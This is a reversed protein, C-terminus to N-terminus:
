SRSVNQYALSASEYERVFIRHQERAMFVMLENAYEKVLGVSESDMNSSAVMQPLSVLMRLLHEAGYIESMEKEQGVVVTPGTVYKKRIEAYQPREFRYLLNAGLARDFYTQLGAVITPLLTPPDKLHAAKEAIVYTKFDQLLDLVNPKRPLGVLQNNKTVAEWDDVLLVKLSEPVTLKMEPRKSHEDQASNNHSYPPSFTHCGAEERGRKTGRTGGDKRGTRSSSGAAALKSAGKSASASASGQAANAQAQLAKQLQINSENYKMLRAPQVWEDWTQKWGKYHVFYHPGVTGMKTTTEDWHEIKIIKAEYVLPGHYCLIREGQSYIGMPTTMEGAYLPSLHTPSRQLYPTHDCSLFCDFVGDYAIRHREALGRFLARIGDYDPLDEFSLSRTYKYFIDFEAPLGVTLLDQMEVKRDRILDWTEDTTPAKIKRWPLSGRLFYILMYALSELDDRRSAEIGLHTNIAAFLCTGVGHYGDQKYAIHESTRPDRFKKALGFDIINVLDDGDQDSKPIVFNAPKIDRHVLDRSHIYEIRSILQDTLLLITKLSFYNNCMDFLQELSPGLLDIVMVNYDGQKGSWMIWPVGPGGSLTKYIKSEQKLPSSKAIAPELKIAVEKGAITHVGQFVEGCGGKAIVEEVKYKGGFTFDM